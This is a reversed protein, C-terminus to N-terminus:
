GRHPLYSMSIISLAALVSIIAIGWFGKIRSHFAERLAITHTYEDYQESPVLIFTEPNPFHAFYQQGNAITVNSGERLEVTQTENTTWQIKAVVEGREGSPQGLSTVTYQTGGITVTENGELTIGDLSFQPQQTSKAVGIYAYSGAGIVLFFVFYIAAARRQM